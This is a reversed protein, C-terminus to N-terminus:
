NQGPFSAERLLVLRSPAAKPSRHTIRSFTFAAQAIQEREQAPNIYGDDICWAREGTRVDCTGAARRCSCIGSGPRRYYGLIAPVRMM